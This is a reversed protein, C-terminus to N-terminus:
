YQFYTYRITSGDLTYKVGNLDFAKMLIENQGFILSSYESYMAQALVWDGDQSYRVYAKLTNLLLVYSDVFESYSDDHPLRGIKVLDGDIREMWADTEEDSFIHGGSVYRNLTDTQSDRIEWLTDLMDRLGVGDVMTNHVGIYRLFSTKLCAFDRPLDIGDPSVIGWANSFLVFFFFVALSIRLLYRFVLGWSFKRQEREAQKQFKNQKPVYWKSGDSRIVEEWYTNIYAKQEKASEKRVGQSEKSKQVIELYEKEWLDM